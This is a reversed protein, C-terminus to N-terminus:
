SHIWEWASRHADHKEVYALFDDYFPHRSITASDGIVILLRRARTMGVNMRRTDSLFGVEGTENSRVLSLIVVEKERGQFSDISGIEIGKGACLGRLKKVQAVYPTIIALNSPGMGSETLADLLKRVLGAEGDNERSELLENWTEAYGTGATDIYVLPVSTIDTSKVGPLEDATHAKVSDDALLQGDYFKESSFTMITEHMRYQVRLLTQLGHPLHKQLRDFLTVSLGREAADKSYITPPLQNSDGAFIVKKALTIPIWSLPETAQSAEDMVVLDFKERSLAGGVGGHTCLVVQSQQVIQRRLGFEADNAEKRLQKIRMSMEHREAPDGGRGRDEKRRLQTLLRHREDDMRTIEEMFPHAEELAALTVHRLPELIRAPHGMRVIRLHSDILKEVMNDVAINSPASALVRGGRKVTQRIIEVLVTTKGTGPPGHILAVNEAALCSRVADVQFENLRPNFLELGAKVENLLLRDTEAEKSGMFINRLDVLHAKESRRVTGLAQRMRKYTADSGLLDIQYSGTPWVDPVSGNLAVTVQQESVDYLTGDRAPLGSSPPFTMLVNDGQNMSHFPSLGVSGPTLFALKSEPKRLVVLPMGGVGVDEGVLELRTVTKGLSERAQITYRELERKNQEKEAERELEILGFLKEFHEDHQNKDM